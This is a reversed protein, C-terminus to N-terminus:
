SNESTRYRYLIIGASIAVNLSECDSYSPIKIRTYSKSNIIDPRIGHAENGFVFASPSQNFHFWSIDNDANLDALYINFNEHSLAELEEELNIEEYVPINFLAGQSARVVKPNYPEASNKSLLVADANFWWATRIITGLNGPDNITDLVLVTTINKYDLKKHTFKEVLALIGQPNQTESIKQFQREPIEEFPVGASKVLRSVAPDVYKESIYIKELKNYYYNSSVAEQVLHLGEIIFKNESDRFKKQKLSSLYKAENNTL